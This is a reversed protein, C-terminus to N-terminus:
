LLLVAFFVRYFNLALVPVADGTLKVFIGITAEAVTVVGLALAAKM